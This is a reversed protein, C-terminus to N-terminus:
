DRLGYDEIAATILRTAGWTRYRIRNFVSQCLERMKRREEPHLHANNSLAMMILAIALTTQKCGLIGAFTALRIKIGEPIHATQRKYEGTITMEVPFTSFWRHILNKLESDKFKAANFDRQIDRLEFITGERGMISLGVHLCASLMPHIGPRYDHNRYCNEIVEMMNALLSNPFTEITIWKYDQPRSPDVQFNEGTWGCVVSIVDDEDLFHKFPSRPDHPYPPLKV